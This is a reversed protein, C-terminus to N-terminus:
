KIDIVRAQKQAKKQLTLTLIGDRFVAEILEQNINEPLKFARSFKGDRIEKLFYNQDETVEPAKREGSIILDGKEIKIAIDERTLGPLEMSILYHDQDEMSNVSPTFRKEKEIHPEVFDTFLSNIINNLPREYRVFM